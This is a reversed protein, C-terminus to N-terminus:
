VCYAFTKTFIVRKLLLKGGLLAENQAVIQLKQHKIIAKNKLENDKNRHLSLPAQKFLMKM